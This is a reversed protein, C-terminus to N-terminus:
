RAAMTLVVPTDDATDARDAAADARLYLTADSSTTGHAGSAVTAQSPSLAAYGTNQNRSWKVSRSNPSAGISLIWPRTATVSVTVGGAQKNGIISSTAITSAAFSSVQVKVRPPITVSVTHVGTASGMQAVLPRSVLATSLFLTALVSRFAVM